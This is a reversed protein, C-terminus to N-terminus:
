MEITYDPETNSGRDSHQIEVKGNKYRNIVVKDIAAAETREANDTPIFGKPILYVYLTEALGDNGGTVFLCSFSGSKNVPVSPMNALPKPGWMRGGREVQLTMTVRFDDYSYKIKDLVVEGNITYGKGILPAKEIKLRPAEQANAVGCFYFAASLLVTLIRTKM